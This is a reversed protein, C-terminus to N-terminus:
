GQPGFCFDLLCTEHARCQGPSLMTCKCMGVGMSTDCTGTPCETGVTCVGPTYCVGAPAYCYQGSGCPPCVDCPQGTVQCWGSCDHYGANCDYGCTSGDCTVAGHDPAEPCPVCSDGCSDPDSNSVCLNGCAHYGTKCTYTCSQGNCAVDANAATPCPTCRTGCSAVSTNSLCAGSCAHFGDNCSVGCSAGDCTATGNAPTPCPDCRSGCTAPDLNSVCIGNCPHQGGPCSNLVCASGQCIQNPECAHGCAGCNRADSTLDVCESSCRKFGEDCTFSCAGAVCTVQGHVPAVGCAACSLGCHGTDDDPYCSDACQHQGAPCGASAALTVFTEVTRGRVLTASAEGRAVEAGGSLGAALFDVKAGALQDEFRVVVDQGQRLEGVAVPPVDLTVLSLGGVDVELRVQDIAVGPDLDLFVRAATSPPSGCAALALLAVLTTARLWRM